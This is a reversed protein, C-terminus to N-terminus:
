RRNWINGCVGASPMAIAVIAIVILHIILMVIGYAFLGGHCLSKMGRIFLDIQFGAWIVVKIAYFISLCIFAGKLSNYTMVKAKYMVILLIVSSLFIIETIGIGLLWNRLITQNFGYPKDLCDSTPKALPFYM